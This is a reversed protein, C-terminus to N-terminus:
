EGQQTFTAGAFAPTIWNISLNRPESLHTSCLCHQGRMGTFVRIEIQKLTSYRQNTLHRRNTVWDKGVPSQLLRDIEPDAARVSAAAAILFLFTASTSTVRRVRHKVPKCREEGVNTADEGRSRLAGALRPIV